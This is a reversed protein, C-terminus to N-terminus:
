RWKPRIKGRRRQLEGIQKPIDTGHIFTLYALKASEDWFDTAM